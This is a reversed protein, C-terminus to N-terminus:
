EDTEKLSPRVTARIRGKSLRAEIETGAPADAADRLLAGDEVRTVVAFGRGLTALPSVADLTRAALALRQDLANLRGEIASAMRQRLTAAQACLVELRHRPNERWLRAGLIELRQRQHLLNGRIASRLRMDLDDLRQTHQALRAGPHSVQLRQALAGLALSHRRLARGVAGTFRLQLQSLIELWAAKDPVATLAAASPTPARVDAVFDAITVDVEHGVGSITPVACRSIARAVREDNFCWLDEMSGGGRAVILVDCEQRRSAMDIARVIEPVAAAGQVATPYVLVAAAPFRARLVRLIDHVAAGTPSTVVGIRRPVAPLPRKRETAFLGEAALKAKLKEFERKLAGEGGEELHEVILQYEGRPEYLGVRARALVRMGDKPRFRLLSNRQKWMACRVQAQSDKLSFYWHGSAPTAFNSLEGELWLVPLGSELLLRVEKNLRSVTYVDRQREREPATAPPEFNFSV